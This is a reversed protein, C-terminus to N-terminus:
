HQRQKGNKGITRGFDDQKRELRTIAAAALQRRNATRSYHDAMAITQQGLVAAITRPDNGDEALLTGLTHLLGHFSLGPQITGEEVLRRILGFFRRQFGAQTYPRGRAGIVIIPSVRPLSDLIERLRAKGFKLNWATTAAWMVNLADAERLGVFAGLAIPVKLEPPAEALVTELEAQKWPRNVITAGKPKKVFDM